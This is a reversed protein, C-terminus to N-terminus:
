ALAALRESLEVRDFITDVRDIVVGGGDVLVLCPEFHLGLEAVIPTSADLDKAPDMYVEAHLFRVAPHDDRVGLLIDLVPGCIAIQCFKPSAVLLAVPSGDALAAALSVDHLPCIPEATCIPTVGRPDAVTPTEVAPMRDGPGLVTVDEPADVKISMEAGVGDVETRATYIGPADFTALLPFYARPLGDAHRRVEVPDAVEGGAADLLRVELREPTRAVPLLGDQDAVGFPLRVERGPVFTPGGFFQALALSGSAGSTSGPAGDDGSSGASTSDSGCGALLVAAAAGGGVLLQRRTLELRSSTRM